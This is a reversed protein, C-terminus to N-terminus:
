IIQTKWSAVSGYNNRKNTTMTEDEKVTEVDIMGYQTGIFLM